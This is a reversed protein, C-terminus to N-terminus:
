AFRPALRDVVLKGINLSATAAPSPANEVNVVRDTEDIVFDDVMKGDPSVTQARVGAPAWDLYESKIEPVLRRLARVFARKSFSRHMENAGIRWYKTALRWFGPYTLTESLDRLNITTNTYGERAFALVANPGCEIMGSMRKTFHVGLFPYAPDPVPYILGKVLYQREPRLAYFEGRFPVVKASPKAGSLKTVRDSYLGACNVVQKAAFPGAATEVVARDNDRKIGTAKASTVVRSGQEKIIEALRRCVRAYDVVGAEPVHIGAIGTGHPELERIHQPTIWNCVVGNQPGRELLMEMRPLESEEVAVIIKGCLDFPINEKTCFEEMAKKGARCNLAKLSGPRYYIGTHLVGSNRGTQHKAIDAEKELVTVTKGPFRELFRYATALGVIGGGIIILDSESTM